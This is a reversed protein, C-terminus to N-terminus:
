KLIPQQMQLYKKLVWGRKTLETGNERFAVEIWKQSRNTLRVVDEPYITGVVESKSSPGLYATVSRDKVVYYTEATGAKEVMKEMIARHTHLIGLYIQANFEDQKDEFKGHLELFIQLITLLTQLDLKFFPEQREKDAATEEREHPLLEGGDQAPTAGVAILDNVQGSYQGTNIRIIELQRM